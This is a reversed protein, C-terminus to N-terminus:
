LGYYVTQMCHTQMVVLSHDLYIPHANLPGVGMVSAFLSQLQAPTMASMMSQLYGMQAPDQQPQQPPVQQPPPAQQQPQAPQVL